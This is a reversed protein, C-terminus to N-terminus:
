LSAAWSSCRAVFRTSNTCTCWCRRFSSRCWRAVSTASEAALRATGTIIGICITIGIVGYFAVSLLIGLAVLLSGAVSVTRLPLKRLLVGTVVGFINSVAGLLSFPWSAAQRSAGMESIMTVFVIGGSRNVIMTWFLCWSCAAAVLVSRGTDQYSAMTRAM